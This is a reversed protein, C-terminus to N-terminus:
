RKGHGIPSIGFKKMRVGATNAIPFTIAPNPVLQTTSNKM